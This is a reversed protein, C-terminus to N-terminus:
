WILDSWQEITRHHQSESDVQTSNRTNHLNSTTASSLPTLNSEHPLHETNEASVRQKTFKLGLFHLVLPPGGLGADRKEPM